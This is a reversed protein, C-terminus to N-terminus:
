GTVERYGAVISEVVTGTIGGGCVPCKGLAKLTEEYRPLLNATEVRAEEVERLAQDIERALRHYKKRMQELEKLKGAAEQLRAVMAEAVPLKATRRLFAEVRQLGAEVAARRSELELLRQMTARARPLNDEIAAAVEPLAATAALVLGARAIGDQCRALIERLAALRQRRGEREDARSLIGEVEHIRQELVPLDKFGELEEDLRQLKERLDKEEQLYQGAERAAARIAADLIHVGSVRGIARARVAGNESLLFPGELQGALNLTVELDTDLPVKTIGHAKLVELPPESGFGEFVRPECGPEELLYRNRNGKRERSIRTGNELEVMVRCPGAASVRVFDAGRPENFLVWRLARIVASKGADSAGTIVNLGEVFEIETREHSQFNEIVLRRLSGM